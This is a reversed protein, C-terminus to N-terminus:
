AGQDILCAEIAQASTGTIRLAKDRCKDGSELSVQRKSLHLQKAIFACLASNAAGDVPPATLAIRIRGDAEIRIANKSAKPQVRVRLLVYGDRQEVNIM